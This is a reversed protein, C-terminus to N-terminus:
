VKYKALYANFAKLCDHRKRSSMDVNFNFITSICSNEISKIYRMNILVNQHCRLFGYPSLLNEYENLRGACEFKGDKTIFMILRYYGEIYIIESVDLAYSTDKWKFNVIFHQEIHKKLARRLVDIVTESDAPKIIYDFPEIRFSQFVYQQFSTFLIIIVDRDNARISQGVELGSIGDMQIDLFIVNFSDRIHDALLDAGNSFEKIETGNPLIGSRDISRHLDTRFTREDDCIAIRLLGDGKLQEICSYANKTSKELFQKFLQMETGTGKAKKHHIAM